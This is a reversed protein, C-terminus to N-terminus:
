FKSFVVQITILIAAFTIIIFLTSWFEVWKSIRKTHRYNSNVILVQFISDNKLKEAFTQEDLEKNNEHFKKLYNMLVKDHEGISKIIWENAKM